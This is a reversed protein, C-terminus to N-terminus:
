KLNEGMGEERMRGEKWSEMEGELEEDGGSRINNM